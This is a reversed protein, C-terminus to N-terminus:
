IMSSRTWHCIIWCVSVAEMTAAGVKKAKGAAKQNWFSGFFGPEEKKVDVDLDKNNNMQGSTKGKDTTQQPKNANLKDSVIGM